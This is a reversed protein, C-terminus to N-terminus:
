RNESIIENTKITKRAVVVVVVFDNKIQIEILENSTKNIKIKVMENPELTKGLHKNNKRERWKNAISTSNEETKSEM